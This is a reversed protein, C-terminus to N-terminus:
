VTPAVLVAETSTVSSSGVRTAMAAALSLLASSPLVVSVAMNVTVRPRPSTSPSLRSTGSATVPMAAASYESATAAAVPTARDPLVSVKVPGSLPALALVAVMVKVAASSSLAVSAALSATAMVMGADEALPVGRMVALPRSPPAEPEPVAPMVMTSLPMAPPATLTLAPAATVSPSDAVKVRAMLVAEVLGTVTLTVTASVPMTSAALSSPARVTTMGAPSVSAVKVTPVAESAMSSCLPETSTVTLVPM